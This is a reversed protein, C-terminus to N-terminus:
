LLAPPVENSKIFNNLLLYLTTRYTNEIEVLNLLSYTQRSKFFICITNYRQLLQLAEFCPFLSKIVTIEYEADNYHDNCTKDYIFHLM